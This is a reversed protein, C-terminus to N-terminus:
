AQAALIELFQRPTVIRMGEYQQLELLGKDGTVLYDASALRGTALVLDDEPDGTVARVQEGTVLVMEAQTRLLGDIWQIDFRSQLNYRRSIRPLALKEQLKAIIGESSVAAFQNTFWSLIVQRPLGIPGLIASVLVNVDIVARIM